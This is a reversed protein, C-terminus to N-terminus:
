LTYNKFIKKPGWRWGHYRRRRYYYTGGEGEGWKLSYNVPEPYHYCSKRKHHVQTFDFNYYKTITNKKHFDAFTFDIIKSMDFGKNM